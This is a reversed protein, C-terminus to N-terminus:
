QLKRPEGSSPLSQATQNLLEAIVHHNANRAFTEANEGDDDVLALNAGHKLLVKVVELHGESAAYMLPTFHEIGDTANIEAGNKLLLEVTQANPGSAAFHLPTLNRKDAVNVEAGNNILERAVDTHGNYAALMLPTTGEETTENLNSNLVIYAVIAEFSGNLAAEHIPEKPKVISPKATSGSLHESSLNKKNEQKQSCAALSLLAVIIIPFLLKMKKHKYRITCREHKTTTTITLLLPVWLTDSFISILKYIRNNVRLKKTFLKPQEFFSARGFIIQDLRKEEKM